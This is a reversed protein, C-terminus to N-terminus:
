DAVYDTCAVYDHVVECDDCWNIHNRPFCGPWDCIPCPYPECDM